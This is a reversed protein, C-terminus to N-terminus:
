GSDDGRAEYITEAGRCRYLHGNMPDHDWHGQEIVHGESLEGCHKCLKAEHQAKILDEKMRERLGKVKRCLSAFEKHRVAMELSSGRSSRLLGSTIFVLLQIEGPSFDVRYKPKRSM